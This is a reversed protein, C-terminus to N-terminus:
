RLVCPLQSHRENDSQGPVRICTGMGAACMTRQVAHLPLRSTRKHPRAPYLTGRQPAGSQLHLRDVSALNCSSPPVTSPNYQTQELASDMHCPLCCTRSGALDLPACRGCRLNCDLERQKQAHALKSRVRAVVLLTRQVAACLADGLTRLAPGQRM